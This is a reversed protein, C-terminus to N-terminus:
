PALSAPPARLLVSATERGRSAACALLQMTAAYLGTSTHAGTWLLWTPYSLYCIRRQPGQRDSGDASCLTRLSSFAILAVRRPCVHISLPNASSSPLRVWRLGDSPGVRIQLGPSLGSGFGRGFGALVMDDIPSPLLEPAKSCVRQTSALASAM